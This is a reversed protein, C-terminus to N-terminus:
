RVATAKRPTQQPNWWLRFDSPQANEAAGVLRTGLPTFHCELVLPLICLMPPPVDWSAQIHQDCMARGLADTVREYCLPEHTRSQPNGRWSTRVGARVGASAAGSKELTHRNCLRLEVHKTMHTGRTTTRVDIATVQPAHILNVSGVANLLPRIGREDVGGAYGHTELGSRVPWNHKVNDWALPLCSSVGLFKQVLMRVVTTVDVLETVHLIHVCSLLRM